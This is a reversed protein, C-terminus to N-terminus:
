LLCLLKTLENPVVLSKSMLFIHSHELCEDRKPSQSVSQYLSHVHSYKFSHISYPLFCLVCFGVLGLRIICM